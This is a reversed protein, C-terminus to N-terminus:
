VRRKAARRNVTRDPQHITVSEKEQPKQREVTVRVQVGPADAFPMLFAAQAVNQTIGDFSVRWGGSALSQVKYVIGTFQAIEQWNDGDARYVGKEESMPPNFAFLRSAM